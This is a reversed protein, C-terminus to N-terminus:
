LNSIVIVGYGNCSSDLSSWSGELRDCLNGCGWDQTRFTVRDSLGCAQEGLWDSIYPEQCVRSGYFVASHFYVPVDNPFNGGILWHFSDFLDITTNAPIGILNSFYEIRCSCDSSGFVRIIASCDSTNIIRLSSVQASLMIAHTSFLVALLLSKM